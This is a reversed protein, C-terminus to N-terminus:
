KTPQLTKGQPAFNQGTFVQISDASVSGDTNSKGRIMVNDGSALSSIDTMVSKSVTTSASLLVIKSSGDQNKIVITNKDLSDVVGRLNGGFNGGKGQGRMMGTGNGAFNNQGPVNNTNVSWRGLFFSVIILVIVILSITQTNKEKFNILM